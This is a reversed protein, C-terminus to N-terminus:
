VVLFIDYLAHAGAAIGFGRHVFLLSFFVGALWRFAFTLPDFLEGRYSFSHGFLVTRFEYHAAAFVLSTLGIAWLLSARRDFGTGQLARAVMPLLLLRFLLEEYIGAGLYGVLRGLVASRSPGLGAAQVPPPLWQSVLQAAGLLLLALGASEFAMGLLTLSDCRWQDHRLHHWALLVGCTLLPLLFYQGLGAHDLLSRLWVDAGNRLARPGLAIVGLEYAVLMPAVFVLGNLPRASETWYARLPPSTSM